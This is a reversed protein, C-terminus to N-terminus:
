APSFGNEQLFATTNKRVAAAGLKELKTKLDVKIDELDRPNFGMLTHGLVEVLADFKEDENANSFRGVARALNIEYKDTQVEEGLAAPYILASVKAGTIVADDLTSLPRISLKDNGSFLVSKETASHKAQPANELRLKAQDRLIGEVNSGSSVRVRQRTDMSQGKVEQNTCKHCM